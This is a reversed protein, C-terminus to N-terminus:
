RMSNQELREAEALAVACEAAIGERREELVEVIWTEREAYAIRMLKHLTALQDLISDVVPQYGEQEDLQWERVRERLELSPTPYARQLAEHYEADSPAEELVRSLADQAYPNRLGKFFHTADEHAELDAGFRLETGHAECFALGYVELTADRWCLGGADEHRTFCPREETTTTTQEETM